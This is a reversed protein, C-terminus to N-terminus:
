LHHFDGSGTFVTGYQAPLRADLLTRFRRMTARSCGFRIAEQWEALPLVLRNPLEGVSGGIDLVVPRQVSMNVRAGGRNTPRAEARRMPCTPSYGSGRCTCPQRRLEDCSM